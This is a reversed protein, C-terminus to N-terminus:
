GWGLPKGRHPSCGLTLDSVKYREEGRMVSLKNRTGAEERSVAQKIM